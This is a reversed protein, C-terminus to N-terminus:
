SPKRDQHAPPIGTTWITSTEAVMGVSMPMANVLLMPKDAVMVATTEPGTATFHLSIAGGGEGGEGGLGGGGFGGAGGGLGGGSTVGAHATNWSASTLV